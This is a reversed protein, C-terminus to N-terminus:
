ADDCLYMLTGMIFGVSFAAGCWGVGLLAAIKAVKLPGLIYVLGAGSSYKIADSFNVGFNMKPYSSVSEPRERLPKDLNMKPNSSVSEPRERIPKDIIVMDKEFDISSDPADEVRKNLKILKEIEDCSKQFNFDQPCTLLNEKIQHFKENDNFTKVHIPLCFNEKETSIMIESSQSQKINFNDDLCYKIVFLATSNSDVTIIDSKLVVTKSLIGITEIIREIKFPDNEPSIIKIALPIVDQNDIEIIRFQTRFKEYNYFVIEKPDFHFKSTKFTANTYKSTEIFNKLEEFINEDMKELETKLEKENEFYKEITKTDEM